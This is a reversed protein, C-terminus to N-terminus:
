SEYSECSFYSQQSISIYGRPNDQLELKFGFQRFIFGGNYRALIPSERMCFYISSSLETFTNSRMNFTLTNSRMNFTLFQVALRRIPHLVSWMCRNLKVCVRVCINCFIYFSPNRTRHKLVCNVFDITINVIFVRYGYLLSNSMLSVLAPITSGVCIIEPFQQFTAFMPQKEAKKYIM